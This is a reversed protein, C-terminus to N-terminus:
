CDACKKLVLENDTPVYITSGQDEVPKLVFYTRAAGGVNKEETEEIKCVGQVGYIIVDGVQFVAVVGM